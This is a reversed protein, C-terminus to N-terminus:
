QKDLVFAYTVTVNGKEIQDFKMRRAKDKIEDDLTGNGTNSSVISIQIIDGSPAITFKLSIKGGLNPNDRLYKEYTYRFGGIHQRIVRLISEPSRSGAEGGLEVDSPKPPSVRGRTAVGNGNGGAGLAMKGQRTGGNGTGFGARGGTGLGIGGVGGMRDGDGGAGHGGREGKKMSGGGGALIVDILNAENPDVDEGMLGDSATMLKDMVSEKMVSSPSSPPWAVTRTETSGGENPNTPKQDSAGGADEKPEPKEEKKEEEPPKEQVLELVVDPLQDDKPRPKSGLVVMGVMALIGVVLFIAMAGARVKGQGEGPERWGMKLALHMRSRAKDWLTSRLPTDEVVEITHGAWHFRYTEDRNGSVGNRVTGDEQLCAWAGSGDIMVLKEPFPPPMVVDSKPHAGIKLSTSWSGWERTVRNEKILVVKWHHIM